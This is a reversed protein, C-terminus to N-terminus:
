LFFGKKLFNCHKKVFFFFVESLSFNVIDNYLQSGIFKVMGNIVYFLVKSYQINCFNDTLFYSLYIFELTYVVFTNTRQTKVLYSGSTLNKLIKSQPIFTPWKRGFILGTIPQSLQDVM